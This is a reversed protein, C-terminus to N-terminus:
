LRRRLKSSASAVPKSASASVKSTVTALTTKVPTSAAPTTKVTTPAATTKTTPVATTKATTTTTKKTPAPFTPFPITFTLFGPITIPFDPEAEPAAAVSVTFAALAAVIVSKVYM